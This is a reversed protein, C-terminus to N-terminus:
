IIYLKSYSVQPKLNFTSQFLSHLFTYSIISFLLGTSIGQYHATVVFTEISYLLFFIAFRDEPISKKAIVFFALIATGLILFIQTLTGGFRNIGSFSFFPILALILLLIKLRQNNSKAM